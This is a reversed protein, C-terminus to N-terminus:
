SGVGICRCQGNGYRHAHSNHRNRKGAMSMPRLGKGYYEYRTLQGERHLRCKNAMINQDWKVIVPLASRALTMQTMEMIWKDIPKRDGGQHRQRVGGHGHRCSLIYLM